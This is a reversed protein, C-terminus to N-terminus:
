RFIKIFFLKIYPNHNRLIGTNWFFPLLLHLIVCMKINVKCPTLLIYSNKFHFIFADFKIENIIFEIKCSILRITIGM